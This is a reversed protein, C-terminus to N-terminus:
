KFFLIYNYFIFLLSIGLLPMYDLITSNHEELVEEAEKESEPLAKYLKYSITGCIISFVLGVIIALINTFFDTPMDIAETPINDAKELLFYGIALAIANNFGHGIMSSYISDTKYVILGFVIGLFIPGLLNQLNFHYVGFLISSIIIAKKKGLKDYSSMIMGRFLIEECIGPSLSIVILGLIFEPSSEPIPIPLPKIEIFSSLLLIFIYNLFAGVPYAFIVILPVLAIQKISIKNLKLVKKLSYGKVKLYLVTPLFIIIYQTILLGTYIEKSQVFGGLFILLIGLILYLINAELISVKERKRDM